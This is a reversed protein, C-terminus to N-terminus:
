WVPTGAMPTDYQSGSLWTGARSSQAGSRASVVSKVATGEGDVDPNGDEEDEEERKAAEYERRKQPANFFMMMFSGLVFCGSQICGATHVKSRREADDGSDIYSALGISTILGVYQACMIVGAGATAPSVPFVTEAALELAVAFAPQVFFGLLGAGLILFVLPPPTVDLTPSATPYTGLSTTPFNTTPSLTSTNLPIEDDRGGTRAAVWTIFQQSSACVIYLVILVERYLPRRGVFGAVIGSGVIGPVIVMTGALGVASHSYGFPKLFQNLLIALAFSQGFALGFSAASLWYMPSRCLARLEETYTLKLKPDLDAAKSPPTPPKERVSILAYVLMAGAMAAFIYHLKPINDANNKTVMPPLVFGLGIGIPNGLAALMTALPRQKPAFWNQSVLTLLQSIVPRGMGSVVQGIVLLFFTSHDHAICRICAGACTVLAAGRVGNAFGVRKIIPAALWVIPGYMGSMAYSLINVVTEPVDYKEHVLDTIPSYTLWLAANIANVLFVALLVAWRYGYVPLEDSLLEQEEWVAEDERCNVEGCNVTDQHGTGMTDGRGEGAKTNM